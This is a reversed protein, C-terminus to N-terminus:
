RRFFVIRNDSICKESKEVQEQTKRALDQTNEAIVIETPDDVYGISTEEPNNAPFDNAFLTYLLGAIVTGQPCGFDGVTKYPSTRIQIQTAQKRRSLYTKLWNLIGQGFNYAALKGLLTSHDMLDYAAKQDILVIAAIQKKNMAESIVENLHVQATVVSKGNVGGHVNEHFIKNRSCQDIMQSCVAHELIKGLEDTHTIPRFNDLLHKPGKKHQPHIIQYKLAPPFEQESISQNVFQLIAQECM